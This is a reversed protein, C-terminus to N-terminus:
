EEPYLFELISKKGKKEFDDFTYNLIDQILDSRTIGAEKLGEDSVFNNIKNYLTSSLTISIREIKDKNRRQRKM